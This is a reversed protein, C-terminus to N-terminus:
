QSNNTNFPKISSKDGDILGMNVINNAFIFQDKVFNMCVSKKSSPFGVIISFLLCPEVYQETVSIVSKEMLCAITPMLVVMLSELSQNYASSHFIFLFVTLLIYFFCNRFRYWYKNLMELISSCFLEECIKESIAKDAKESIDENKNSAM